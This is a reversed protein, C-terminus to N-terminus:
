EAVPIVDVSQESSHRGVTRLVGVIPAVDAYDRGYGIVIHDNGALIANTPDFERWGAERGCWVSVWAHMADAGELREKGPPPITRIFGSVYAAPVGLGRLGSIMVHSFDQCVGAKLRFAEHSLTRVNTADPEYDFDAHIRKCLDFALEFVSRSSAASDRAYATIAPELPAHLSGAVFHHPSTADLTLTADIEAGLGELNPSIDLPPEPRTVSVRAKMTLDLTDHPKRFAISTVANGFFDSFATQESPKPSLAINAAIVRQMGPLTLPMTRLHHRGGEVPYPYDYHLNLRVDYLM